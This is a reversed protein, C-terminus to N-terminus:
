SNIFKKNTKKIKKGTVKEYFNFATEWDGSDGDSSYTFVKPPFHQAFSILAFCVLLDYPKRATKCFAFKGKWLGTYFDGIPIHFTEHGMDGTPDGNFWVESENIVPTPYGHNGGCIKISTKDPLENLGKKIEASVKKFTDRMKNSDYTENKKIDWYHTYGM